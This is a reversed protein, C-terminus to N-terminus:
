NKSQLWKLIDAGIKVGDHFKDGKTLLDMSEKLYEEEATDSKKEILEIACSTQFEPHGQYCLIHDGVAFAQVSSIDNSALLTAGEPIKSVTDGHSMILRLKGGDVRNIERIGLEIHTNEVVEGGLAKAVAQHGFCIGVLKSAPPPKNFGRIWELLGQIWEDSDEASASAGTIVYLDYKRPDPFKSEYANYVITEVKAYGEQMNKRSDQLWRDTMEAFNEGEVLQPDCLLIAVTCVTDQM